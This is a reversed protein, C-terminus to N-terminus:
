DFLPDSLPPRAGLRGVVWSAARVARRGAELPGMGRMASALFVGAFADGAGTADVAEVPPAPLHVFDEATPILAGEADLKVVVRSGPLAEALAMAAAEPDNEGSLVRAEERNPFFWLPAIRRVLELYAGRGMEEIRRASAPDLSVPRQRRAAELAASRPPDTFLAWGSIFLHEIGRFAAEPLEDPTLFHDAGYGFVQAREGGPEIWIAVAATARGPDVVLHPEVGEARLEERAMQGLADGGVKGLFASPEGARRAWVAVNAAGGGPMLRVVGPADGGPHLAGQPKVLVDWAYDGLALLM